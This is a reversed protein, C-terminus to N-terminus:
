IYIYEIDGIFSLGHSALSKVVSCVRTLLSNWYKKETEIQHMLKTNIKSLDSALEKMKYSCLKHQPSNEHYSIKKPHKWDSFGTKSFNTKNEFLLCPVCYISGTSESYSLYDRQCTEGNILVTKFFDINLYRFYNRFHGKQVVSYLRKSATFKVDLNQSFGNKCIYQRTQENICWLAPDL